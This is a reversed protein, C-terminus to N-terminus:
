TKLLFSILEFQSTDLIWIRYNLVKPIKEMIPSLDTCIKQSFSINHHPFIVIKLIDYDSDRTSVPMLPRYVDVTIKVITSITAIAFTIVMACDWLYKLHPSICSINGCILSHHLFASHLIYIDICKILSKM